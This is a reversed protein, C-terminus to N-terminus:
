RFVYNWDGKWRRDVTEQSETSVAVPRRLASGAVEKMEALLDANSNLISKEADTDVIVFCTYAERTAISSIRVAPFVARALDLIKADTEEIVKSM